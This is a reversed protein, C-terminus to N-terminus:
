QAKTENASAKPKAGEEEEEEEDLDECFDLTIVNLRTDTENMSQVITKFDEQSYNTQREGDTIVFVRKKYKKTGCHRAIMDLAVILGDVMDGKTTAQKECKIGETVGRLADLNLKEIARFNTVNSYQGGGIQEALHNATRNTGMLVVGM